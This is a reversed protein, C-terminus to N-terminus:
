NSRRKDRQRRRTSVTCNRARRMIEIRASTRCLKIVVAVSARQPACLLARVLEFTSDLRLVGVRHAAQM